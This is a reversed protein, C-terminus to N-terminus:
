ERRRWGPGPPPKPPSAEPPPPPPDTVRRWGGRNAQPSTATPNPGSSAGSGDVARRRKLVPREAAEAPLLEPPRALPPASSIVPPPTAAEPAPGSPGPLPVYSRRYLVEAGPHRSQAFATLSVEISRVEGQLADPPALFHLAYRQRIRALTTEFARADEVPLSDGGSAEAIEATGASGTRSGIVPPIGGGPYRRGLLIDDLVIGRRPRQPPWMGGPQYRMANPALLASLVADARGLERLVGTDDRERETQDDTLIVIARRAERRANGACYRAADYLGRTIDTGGNFREQRLLATFASEMAEIGEEFPMRLRTSRDFVMIGVRDDPGLVAAAQRAALAIREVHPRMSASVDLLLLVDAPMDERAFNRIARPQGQERIEFDDARLGAVARRGADLVQADVRVLSVDSRFTPVTDPGQAGLVPCLLVAVWHFRYKVCIQRASPRFPQLANL